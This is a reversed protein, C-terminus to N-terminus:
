QTYIATDTTICYVLQRKSLGGNRLVQLLQFICPKNFSINLTIRNAITNIVSCKRFEVLQKAVHKLSLSWFFVSTTLIFGLFIFNDAM